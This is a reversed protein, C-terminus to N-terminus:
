MWVFEYTYGKASRRTGNLVRYISGNDTGVYAACKEVSPFTQGTEIIRLRRVKIGDPWDHEEYEGREPTDMRLNRYHNNSKDDDIHKINVHPAYDDLFAEAVLRHIMKEYPRGDLRLQVKKNNNFAPRPSLIHNLRYNAVRGYTSVIYDPFEPIGVWREKEDFSNM